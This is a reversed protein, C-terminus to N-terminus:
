RHHLTDKLYIGTWGDLVCNPTSSIIFNRSLHIWSISSNMILFSLSSFDCVSVCSPSSIIARPGNKEGFSLHSHVPACTRFNAMRQRFLIYRFIIPFIWNRCLFQKAHHSYMHLTCQSGMLKEERAQGKQCWKQWDEGDEWEYSCIM